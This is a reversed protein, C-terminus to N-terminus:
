PLVPKGTRDVSTLTLTMEADKGEPTIFQLKVPNGSKTTGLFRKTSELITPMENSKSDNKQKLDPSLTVVLSGFYFIDGDSQVTATITVSPGIESTTFETAKESSSFSIPYRYDRIIQIIAKQGNRATVKPLTTSGSSVPGMADPDTIKTIDLGILDVSIEVQDPMSDESYAVPLASTAILAILLLHTKMTNKLRVDLEAM